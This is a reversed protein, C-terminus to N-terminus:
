AQKEWVVLDFVLSRYDEVSVVVVRAWRGESTKVCFASGEQVKESPIYDALGTAALCDQLSPPATVAAIVDANIASIYQLDGRSSKDSVGGNPGKSDLDIYYGYNLTVRGSRFETAAGGVPGATTTTPGTAARTTTGAVPADATTTTTTTTATTTTTTAGPLAAGEIPRLGLGGLVGATAAGLVTLVVPVVFHKALHQRPRRGWRYLLWVGVLTVSGAAVLSLPVLDKIGGIVSLLLAAVGAMGGFVQWRDVTAKDFSGRDPPTGDGQVSM